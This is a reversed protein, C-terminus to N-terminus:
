NTDPYLVGQIIVEVIVLGFYYIFSLCITSFIMEDLVEFRKEMQPSVNEISM